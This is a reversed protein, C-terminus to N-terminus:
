AAKVRAISADPIRSSAPPKSTPCSEGGALSYRGRLSARLERLALGWRACFAAPGEAHYAKHCARCLPIADWDAAKQWFGRPGTHHPDAPPPHGCAACPQARLWRLYAPDRVPGRRPTPRCPRVGVRRPVM